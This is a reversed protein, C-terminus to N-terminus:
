YCFVVASTSLPWRAQSGQSHSAGGNQVPVSAGGGAVPQIDANCWKRWVIAMVIGWIIPLGSLVIQLLGGALAVVESVFLYWTKWKEQICRVPSCHYTAHFFLDYQWISDIGGVLAKDYNCSASHGCRSRIRQFCSHPIILPHNLPHKLRIGQHEPGGLGSTENLAYGYIRYSLWELYAQAYTVEASSAKAALVSSLAFDVHRSLEDRFSEVVAQHWQWAPLLTPFVERMQFMTMQKTRNCFANGADQVLTDNLHFNWTFSQFGPVDVESVNLGGAANHPTPFCDANTDYFDWSGNFHLSSNCLNVFDTCPFDNVAYWQSSKSQGLCPCLSLDQRTLDEWKYFYYTWRPNDYYYPEARYDSLQCQLNSGDSSCPTRTITIHTFCGVSSTRLQVIFLSLFVAIGLM